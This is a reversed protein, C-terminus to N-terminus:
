SHRHLLVETLKEEITRAIDPTQPSLMSYIKLPPITFDVDVQVLEPNNTTTFLCCFGLGQQLANIILGYDDTELATNDPVLGVKAMATDTMRRLSSSKGLKIYGYQNVDAASLRTQNALPHSKAVYLGLNLNAIFHSNELQAENQDSFIYAIDYKNRHLSEIIEDLKSEATTEFHIDSYDVELKKIAPILFSGLYPLVAIRVKAKQDKTQSINLLHEVEDLIRRACGAAIKGEETLAVAQGPTREFLPYGLREELSQINGGVSVPSVDIADAYHKFSRHEIVALFVELQRLTIHAM